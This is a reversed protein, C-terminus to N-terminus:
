AELDGQQGYLASLCLLALPEDPNLEVAKKAYGIAKDRTAEENAYFGQLAIYGAPSKKQDALKAIQENAKDEGDRQKLSQYLYAWADNCGHDIELAKDVFEREKAEEKRERALKALHLAPYPNEKMLNQAGKLTGEAKDLKSQQLQAIGLALWDDGVGGK